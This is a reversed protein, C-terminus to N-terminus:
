ARGSVGLMKIYNRIVPIAAENAPKWITAAKLKELPNNDLIEKTKEVIPIQIDTFVNIKAIGLELTKEVGPTGSSGHLVLPIAVKKSIETLRELDLKPEYNYRGHATGIAVALFDVNTLEVFKAAEEPDTYFKKNDVEDYSGQGVHGLEAEVSVGCAHAMKVIERTIAVNEDFPKESADIMVSSFGERIAKMFSEFKYGHDLHLAVPVTANRAAIKAIAAIYDAYDAGYSQITKEGLEILCPANEEECVKVITQISQLDTINFAPLAYGEKRAKVLLTKTSALTM